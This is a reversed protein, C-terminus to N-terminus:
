SACFEHLRVLVAKNQAGQPKWINLYLCDENMTTNPNWTDVFRSEFMTDVIQYCSAPLQTADYQKSADDPPPLPEPPKFRLNGTPPRAFPIGLFCDVNKRSIVDLKRFGNVKGFKDVDVHVEM